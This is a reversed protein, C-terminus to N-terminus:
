RCKRKAALDRDGLLEIAVQGQVLGCDPRLQGLM